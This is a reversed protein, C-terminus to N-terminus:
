GALEAARARAARRAAAQDPAPGTQGPPTAPAQRRATIFAALERVTPRAFMDVVTLEEDLEARLTRHALVMTLSSAGLRFFPTNVDVPTKLLESFVRAVVREVQPDPGPPPMPSSTAPAPPQEQQSAAHLGAGPMAPPRGAGSAVDRAPPGGAASGVDRTPPEGTDGDVVLEM